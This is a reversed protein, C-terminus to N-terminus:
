YEISDDGKFDKLWGKMGGELIWVRPQPFVKQEAIYDLYWGACRPARGSSSGCYFVVDDMTGFSEHFGALNNHFTQAVVQVSGKIHGGAYDLNRVDIIALRLEAKRETKKRLDERQMIPINTEQVAPFADWWKMLPTDQVSSIEITDTKPKMAYVQYSTWLRLNFRLFKGVFKNLDEEPLKFPIQNQSDASMPQDAFGSSPKSNANAAGCCGSSKMEPEMAGCCGSANSEAEAATVYVNVDAKNDVFLPDFFGASQMLAQYEEVTIAGAICGVYYALDEKIKPPLEQKAIIDDLVVRGGPKLVRWIEQFIINKAPTPLLNLVCNSLVCDISNSKIPLTESLSTEVFAMHPPFLGRRQASSRARSIMDPSVDLGITFGEPGVKNAALFIDIGGGSGLDLVVEGPQLTATVTPNGCSLGMHSEEPVAKLQEVSYGFSQAVRSAYEASAGDKARSSYASRVANILGSDNQTPSTSM